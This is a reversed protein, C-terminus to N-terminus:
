QCIGGDCCTKGRLTQFGERAIIPTMVLAAAADAWWWGFLTNLLLGGLLIASLYACLDTQRADAALAKSEMEHAVRRKARALLPMAFLSVVALTIGVLSQKPSERTVLSAFADYCVYAALLLFCIGVLRLSHSEIRERRGADMEAGLRWLLVVGSTVEIVSDFGFGVLAVSGAVIGAVVGILGECSNYAVTLYELRRGRRVLERRRVTGLNVVQQSMIMLASVLHATESKVPPMMCILKAPAACGAITNAAANFLM